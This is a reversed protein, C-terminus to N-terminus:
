VLGNRLLPSHRHCDGEIDRDHTCDDANRSTRDDGEETDRNVAKADDAPKDQDPNGEGHQIALLDSRM